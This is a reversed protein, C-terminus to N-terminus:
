VDMECIKMGQTTGKEKGKGKENGKGEREGKESV